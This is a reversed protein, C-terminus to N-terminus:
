RYLFRSRGDVYQFGIGRVNPFETRRSTEDSGSRRQFGSEPSAAEDAIPVEVFSGPIGGEVSTPVSDGSRETSGIRGRPSRSFESAGNGKRIASVDGHPFGRRQVHAVFASECGPEPGILSIRATVSLNEYVSMSSVEPFAVSQRDDLIRVAAHRVEVVVPGFSSRGGASRRWAIVVDPM